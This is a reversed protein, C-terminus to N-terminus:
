ALAVGVLEGNGGNKCFVCLCIQKGIAQNAGVVLRDLRNEGEAAAATPLGIRDREIMEGYTGIGRLVAIHPLAKANGFGCVGNQTADSVAGRM